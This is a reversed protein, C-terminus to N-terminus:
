VWPVQRTGRAAQMMNVVSSNAVPPNRTQWQDSGCTRAVAAAAFACTIFLKNMTKIQNQRHDQQRGHPYELAREM